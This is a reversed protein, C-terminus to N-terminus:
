KAPVKAATQKKGPVPAEILRIYEASSITQKSGDPQILYYRNTRGDAVPTGPPSNQSFVAADIKENIAYSTVRFECV